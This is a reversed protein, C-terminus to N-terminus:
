PFPSQARAIGSQKSIEVPLSFLSRYWVLHILWRTVVPSQLHRGICTEVPVRLTHEPMAGGPVNAHSKRREVLLGERQVGITVKVRSANVASTRYTLFGRAVAYFYAALHGSCKFMTCSKGYYTSLM